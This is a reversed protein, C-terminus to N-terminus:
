QGAPTKTGERAPPWPAKVDDVIAKPTGGKAKAEPNAPKAQKSEEVIPPTDLPKELETKLM